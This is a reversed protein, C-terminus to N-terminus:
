LPDQIKANNSSHPNRGGHPKDRGGSSRIRRPSQASVPGLGLGGLHGPHHAHTAAPGGHHRKPWMWGYSRLHGV